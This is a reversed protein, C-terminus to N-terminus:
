NKKECGSAIDLEEYKKLEAQELGKLFLGNTKLKKILISKIAIKGGILSKGIFGQMINLGSIVFLCKPITERLMIKLAEKKPYAKYSNENVFKIKYEFEELGNVSMLNVKYNILKRAEEINTADVRIQNLKKLKKAFTKKELLKLIHNTYSVNIVGFIWEDSSSDICQVSFNKDSMDKLNDINSKVFYDYLFSVVLEIPYVNNIIQLLISSISYLSLFVNFNEIEEFFETSKNICFNFITQITDLYGVIIFERIVILMNNEAKDIIMKHILDILFEKDYKKEYGIEHIKAKLEELYPIISEYSYLDYTKKEIGVEEKLKKVRNEAGKLKKKHIKFLKKFNKLKNLFSYISNSGLNTIFPNFNTMFLLDWCKNKMILMSELSEGIGNLAFLFSNKELLHGYQQVISLSDIFYYVEFEKRSNFNDYIRGNLDKLEFNEWILVVSIDENKSRSILTKKLSERINILVWAAKDEFSTKFILRLLYSIINLDFNM